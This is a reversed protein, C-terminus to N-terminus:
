RGRRRTGSEDDPAEDGRTGVTSASAPALGLRGLGAFEVLVGERLSELGLRAELEAHDAARLRDDATRLHERASSAAREAEALRSRDAADAAHLGCPRARKRKPPRPRHRARSARRRAGRQVAGRARGPAAAEREARAVREEAM